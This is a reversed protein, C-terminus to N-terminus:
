PVATITGDENVQVVEVESSTFAPPSGDTPTQTYNIGLLLQQITYAERRTVLAPIIGLVTMDSYFEQSFAKEDGWEDEDLEWAATFPGLNACATVQSFLVGPHLPTELFLDLVRQELEYREFPTAAGLRLQVPGEHRGVNMVVAGPSPEFVEEAQDPHYAMRRPDIVLSPWGQTRGADAQGIVVRDTLEPISCVILEGLRRWAELRIVAM